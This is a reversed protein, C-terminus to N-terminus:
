LPLISAIIKLAVIVSLLAASVFLGVWTAKELYQDLARYEEVEPGSILGKTVLVEVGARPHRRALWHLSQWEEPHNQMVWAAAKRANFGRRLWCAIGYLGPLAAAAALVTEATAGM